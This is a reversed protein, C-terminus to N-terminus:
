SPKVFGLKQAVQHWGIAGLGVLAGNCFSLFAVRAWELLEAPWTLLITALFLLVTAVFWAWLQTRWPIKDKTAEVIATVVLSLGAMTGLQALTLFETPMEM